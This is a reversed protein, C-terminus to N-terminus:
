DPNYEFLDNAFLLCATRGTFCVDGMVCVADQVSWSAHFWIKMINCNSFHNAEKLAVDCSESNECKPIRDKCLQMMFFSIPIINWGLCTLPWPFLTLWFKMQFNWDFIFSLQLWCLLPSVPCPRWFLFLGLTSFCLLLAGGAAILEVFWLCFRFWVLADQM